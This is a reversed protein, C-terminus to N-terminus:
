DVCGDDITGIFAAATLKNKFIAEQNPTVTYVKNLLDQRSKVYTGFLALKSVLAVAKVAASNRPIAILSVKRTDSTGELPIRVTQYSENDVTTTRAGSVTHEVAGASSYTTALSSLVISQSIKTNFQLATPVFAPAHVGPMAPPIAIDIKLLHDSDIIGVWPGGRPPKPQIRLKRAVVALM